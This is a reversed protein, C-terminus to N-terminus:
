AVNGAKAYFYEDKVNFKDLQVEAEISQMIETPLSCLKDFPLNEWDTEVVRQREMHFNSAMPVDSSAEAEVLSIREEGLQRVRRKRATAFSGRLSGSATAILRRVSHPFM